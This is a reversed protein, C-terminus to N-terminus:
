PKAMSTLFAALAILVFIVALAILFNRWSM